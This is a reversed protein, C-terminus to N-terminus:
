RLVKKKRKQHFSSIGTSTRICWVQILFSFFFPRGGGHGAARVSPTSGLAADLTSALNRRHQVQSSKKAGFVWRQVTPFTFRGFTPAIQQVFDVGVTLIFKTESKVILFGIDRVTYHQFFSTTGSEPSGLSPFYAGLAKSGNKVHPLQCNSESQKFPLQCKLDAGFIDSILSRFPWTDLLHHKSFLGVPWSTALVLQHRLIM